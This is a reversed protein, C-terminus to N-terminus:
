KLSGLGCMKKSAGSRRGYPPRPKFRVWVPCITDHMVKTAVSGLLKERMSGRAYSGLVILDVGHEIAWAAIESAPEGGKLLVRDIRDTPLNIPYENLFQGPNSAVGDFSCNPSVANAACGSIPVESVHLLTVRSGFRTALWEVQSTLARIQYSFEIPFSIHDCKM